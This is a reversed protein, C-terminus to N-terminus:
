ETEDSSTNFTQYYQILDEIETIDSENQDLIDTQDKIGQVLIPVLEAQNLALHELVEVNGDKVSSAPVKAELVLDPLVEQVEQAIFGYQINESFGLYEHTNFYFSVPRLALISERANEIDSIDHKLMEDSGQIIAVGSGAVDDTFFGAWDSQLPAGPNGTGASEAFVGYTIQGLTATSSLGIDDGIFGNGGAEAFVGVRNAVTNSSTSRVYLGILEDANDFNTLACDVAGDGRFQEVSLKSSFATSTNILLRTSPTLRMRETNNTGFVIPQGSTQHRM